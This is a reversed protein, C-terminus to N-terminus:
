PVVGPGRPNSMPASRQGVAAAGDATVVMNLVVNPRHDPARDALALGELAELVTVSEPEPLLLRVPAVNM